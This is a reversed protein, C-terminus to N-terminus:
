MNIADPGLVEHYATFQIAEDNNYVNYGTKIVSGYSNATAPTTPKYLERSQLDNYECILEFFKRGGVGPTQLDNKLAGVAIGINTELATQKKELLDNYEKELEQIEKNVVKEKDELDKVELIAKEHKQDFEPDSESFLIDEFNDIIKDVPKNNNLNNVVQYPISEAKQEKLIAALLNLSESSLGM